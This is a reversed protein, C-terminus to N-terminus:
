YEYSVELGLERGKKMPGATWLGAISTLTFLESQSFPFGLNKMQVTIIGWMLWVAFGCLLSPISVWLNRTAIRKGTSDWFTEDEPDWHQLNSM